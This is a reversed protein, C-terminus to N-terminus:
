SNLLAAIDKCTKLALQQAAIKAEDATEFKRKLHRGYLGSVTVEFLDHNDYCRNVRCRIISLDLIHIEDWRHLTEYQRKWGSALKPTNSQGPM